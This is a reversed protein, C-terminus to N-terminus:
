CICVRRGVKNNHLNMLARADMNKREKADIFARAFKRGYDVDDSCGGWEFRRGYKDRARGKKDPDCACTSLQGRSCARTISYVVGASSISYVFSAERSGVEFFSFSRVHTSM